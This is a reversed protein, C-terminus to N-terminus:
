EGGLPGLVKLYLVVVMGIVVLAAVIALIMDVKNSVAPAPEMALVSKPVDGGVSPEVLPDTGLDAGPVTAVPPKTPIEETPPALHAGGPAGPMGGPAGPMGGPAGPM